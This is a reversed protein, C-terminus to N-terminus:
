IEFYLVTRAARLPSTSTYSVDPHRATALSAGGPLSRLRSLFKKIGNSTSIALDTPRAAPWGDAQKPYRRIGLVLQFALLSPPAAEGATVFGIGNGRAESLKNAFCGPPSPQLSCELHEM